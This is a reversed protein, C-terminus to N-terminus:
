VHRFILCAPALHSSFPHGHGPKRDTAYSAQTGLFEVAGHLWVTWVRLPIRRPAGAPVRCGGRWPLCRPKIDVTGQISRRINWFVLGEGLGGTLSFGSGWRGGRLGAPDVRGPFKSRKKRKKLSWGEEGRSRCPRARGPGAQGPRALFDVKVKVNSYSSSAASCLDSDSVVVRWQSVLTPCKSFGPPDKGEFLLCSIFRVWAILLWCSSPICSLILVTLLLSTTLFFEEYSVPRIKSTCLSIRLESCLSRVALSFSKVFLRNCIFFFVIDFRGSCYVVQQM